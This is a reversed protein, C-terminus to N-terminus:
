RLLVHSGALHGSYLAFSLNYGGCKGLVDLAEGVAFIGPKDHLEMTEPDIQDTCIGGSSAQSKDFGYLEIPHVCFSDTIYDYIREATHEPLMAIQASHDLIQAEEMRDLLYRALKDNMYGNLFALISRNPLSDALAQQDSLFADRTIEPIPNIKIVTKGSSLLNRIFEAQNFVVIGSIGQDTFQIEGEEPYASDGTTLIVHQRVGNLASVDERIKIPTLAPSYPQYHIGLSDLLRYSVAPDAAGLEPASCGGISLIIARCQYEKHDSCQVLYHSAAKQDDTVSPEIHLVETNQEFDVRNKDIADLLAWVVSSAQMSMPYYYGKKETLHIGIDHMFYITFERLDAQQLIQDAFPNNYYVSSDYQDNTVNCRGNGTAYLKNGPKKNKDIILCSLDRRSCEIAAALGSAGAGIIIVDYVNKM